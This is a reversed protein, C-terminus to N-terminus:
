CSPPGRPPVGSARRLALAAPERRPSPLSDCGAPAPSASGPLSPPSQNGATAAAGAPSRRQPPDRASTLLPPRHQLRQRRALPGRRWGGAQRLGAIPRLPRTVGRPGAGRCRPPLAPPHSATREPRRLEAGEWRDALAM